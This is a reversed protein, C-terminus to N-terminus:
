AKSIYYTDKERERKWFSKLICKKKYFHEHIYLLIFLYVMNPRRIAIKLLSPKSSYPKKKKNLDDM